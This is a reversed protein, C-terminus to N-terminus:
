NTLVRISTVLGVLIGLTRVIGITESRKASLYVTDGAHLDPNGELSAKQFYDRVNVHMSVVHTGSRRIIEVNEFNANLSPGSRILARVLDSAESLPQSGQTGVAGFVYVYDGAAFVGGARRPVRVTDGPKLRPLSGLGGSRVASALDIVTPTLQSESIIQVASLDADESAGGAESIAEWVTPPQAFSYSGPLLVAGLVFNKRRFTQLVTVSVLRIERSTLSLRRSIDTGLEGATRGAAPVNGVVPITISGDKGVTFQGSIDGRGAVDVGLVDGAVIRYSASPPQSRASSAIVSLVVAAFVFAGFFRSLRGGRPAVFVTPSM